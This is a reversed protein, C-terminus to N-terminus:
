AVGTALSGATGMQSSPQTCALKAAAVVDRQANADSGTMLGSVPGAGFSIASVKIGTRGLTRYQM